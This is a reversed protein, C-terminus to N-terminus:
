KNKDRLLNGRGVGHTNTNEREHTHMHVQPLNYIGMYRHTYLAWSTIRECTHTRMYLGSSFGLTRERTEM